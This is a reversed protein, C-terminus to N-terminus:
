RLPFMIESLKRRFIFGKRLKNTIAEACLKRFYIRKVTQYILRLSITLVPIKENPFKEKIRKTAVDGNCNPMRMDMLIIDPLLKECQDYAEYGDAAFGCIEIEPDQSLM